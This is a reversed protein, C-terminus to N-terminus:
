TATGAEPLPDDNRGAARRRRRAASENNALRCAEDVPEGRRRHRNYATRTGCPALGPERDPRLRAVRDPRIGLARAIEATSLGRRALAEVQQRVREYQNPPRPVGLRHRLTNVWQRSVGWYEAAERDTM